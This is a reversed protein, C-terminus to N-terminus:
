KHDTINAPEAHIELTAGSQAFTVPVDVLHDCAAVVWIERWANSIPPAPPEPTIMLVMDFRTDDVSGSACGAYKGAAAQVAQALAVKQAPLTAITTGPVGYAADLNGKEDASWFLSLKRTRGCGVGSYVEKWAGVRPSGGSDFEVPRAVTVSDSGFSLSGCGPFVAPAIGKLKAGSENQHKPSSLYSRLQPTLGADAGHAAAPSLLLLVAAGARLKSRLM